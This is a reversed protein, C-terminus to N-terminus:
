LGGGRDDSDRAVDSRIRGHAEGAPAEAELAALHEVRDHARLVARGGRLEIVTIGCLVFPFSWFRELRIDLLALLVVKLIGDHAVILSWPKLGGAGPYGDVLSRRLSDPDPGTAGRLNAVARDIAPRARVAADVVREGGPAETTTADRRWALLRELDGAEIDARTRGEWEGQSIETLDPDPRLRAAAPNIAEVAAGVAAATARARELPSHVIELPPGLLGPLAPPRGPDALRSGAAEAQRLGLSSLPPDARGQFREEPIFTSEGHRLLVLMASLDTPITM